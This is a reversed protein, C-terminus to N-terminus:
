SIIGEIDTYTFSIYENNPTKGTLTTTDKQIVTVEQLIGGDYVMVTTNLIDFM